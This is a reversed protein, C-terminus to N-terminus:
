LVHPTDAAPICKGFHHNTAKSVVHAESETQVNGFKRSLGVEDEGPKAPYDLHSATEPM